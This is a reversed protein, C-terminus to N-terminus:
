SRELLKLMLEHISGINKKTKDRHFVAFKGEATLYSECIVEYRQLDGAVRQLDGAM